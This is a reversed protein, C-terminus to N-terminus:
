NILTQVYLNHIPNSVTVLFYITEVQKIHKITYGSRDQEPLAPIVPAIEDLPVVFLFKCSLTILVLKRQLRAGGCAHRNYIRFSVFSDKIQQDM